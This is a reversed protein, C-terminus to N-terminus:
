LSDACLPPLTTLGLCRGDKRGLLYGPYENINSTSDVRPGSPNLLQFIGMFGDLISGLFKWRTARYGLQAVAYGEM